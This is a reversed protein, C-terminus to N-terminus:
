SPPLRRARMIRAVVATAVLVLAAAPAGWFFVGVTFHLASCNPYCDLFGDADHWDTAIALESLLWLVALAGVAILTFSRLWGRSYGYLALSSLLGLSLAMGFTGIGAMAALVSLLWVAALGTVVILSDLAIQRGRVRV